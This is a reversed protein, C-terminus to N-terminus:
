GDLKWGYQINDKIDPICHTKMHFLAEQHLDIFKELWHSSYHPFKYPHWVEDDEVLYRILLHNDSERKVLVVAHCFGKFVKYTNPYINEPNSDPILDKDLM